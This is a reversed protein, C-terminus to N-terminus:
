PWVIWRDTLNEMGVAARLRIPYSVHLFVLFLCQHMCIDQFLFKTMFMRM